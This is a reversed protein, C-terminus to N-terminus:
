AELELYKYLKEIDSIDDTDYSFIAYHTSYKPEGFVSDRRTGSYRDKIIQEAYAKAKDKTDFGWKARTFSASGSHWQHMLDNDYILFVVIYM